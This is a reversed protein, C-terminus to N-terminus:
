CPQDQRGFMDSLSFGDMGMKDQEEITFTSYGTYYAFGEVRVKVANVVKGPGIQVRVEEVGEGAFTGDSGFKGALMSHYEWREGLKRKGKAMALAVRASVASGTPSRDIQQDAFFCVAKERGVAGADGNRGDQAEAVVVGYLFRMEEDPHMLCQRLARDMNIAEKLSRTAVDLATLDTTEAFDVGFGLAELSVCAYFAGGFCIDVSLASRGKLEPWRLDEPIVVEEDVGCAWSPVSVFSVARRADSVCGGEGSDVVPVSVSVVGCPAHIRVEVTSSAEDRVLEKRRPFVAPDTCDILFRGLAITAHGCMTSYGENHLFLVGMHAQSAATDSVLETASCLVAGYMAAHGRPELM